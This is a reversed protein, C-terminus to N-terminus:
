PGGLLQLLQSRREAPLSMSEIVARASVRDSATMFTLIHSRPPDYVLARITSVFYPRRRPDRPPLDQLWKMAAEPQTLRWHAFAAGGAKLSAEQPLQDAWELAQAPDRRALQEGMFRYAYDPVAESSALTLFQALSSPDVAAWSWVIRDLARRLSEPDLRSLWAVAEPPPPQSSYARDPLWKEAVALAGEARARSPPMAEVLAAATPIDKESVGRLIGGVASTLVSGNLHERCWALADAPAQKAWNEAFAPSLQNRVPADAVSLWAAAESPNRATWANLSAAALAKSLEGPNVLAFQVAAAPDVNAWEKGITEMAMRSAVGTPYKLTFQAAHRPDAAAWQQIGTMRPVFNGIGWERFLRLGREPDTEIVAGAVTHQWQSLRGFNGTENLALIAANPDRRAWEGLLSYALEDAERGRGNRATAVLVEFFQRPHLEMWRDAVLRMRARDGRALGLLQPFDASSAKELAELWLLWRTVGGSSMSVDRQLKAALSLPQRSHSPTNSGAAAQLEPRPRLTTTVHARSHIFSRVTLGAVLGILAGAVPLWKKSALSM